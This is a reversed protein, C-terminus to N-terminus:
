LIMRLGKSGEGADANALSHRMLVLLRFPSPSSIEMTLYKSSGQNSSSALFLNSFVSKCFINHYIYIYIYITEEYRNDYNNNTHCPRHLLTTRMALKQVKYGIVRIGNSIKVLWGKNRKWNVCRLRSIEEHFFYKKREQISMMAPFMMRHHPLRRSQVVRPTTPRIILVVVLLVWNPSKPEM